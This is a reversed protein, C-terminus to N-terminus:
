VTEKKQKSLNTMETLLQNTDKKELKRYPCNKKKIFENLAKGHSGELGGALFMVYDNVDVNSYEYTAGNNYTVRLVKLENERDECESYFVNSSKFWARDLRKEENYDRFLLM